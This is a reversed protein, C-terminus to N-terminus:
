FFEIFHGALKKCFHTYFTSLWKSLVTKPPVKAPCGNQLVNIKLITFGKLRSVKIDRYRSMKTDRYPVKLININLMKYFIQGATYQNYNCTFIQIDTLQM